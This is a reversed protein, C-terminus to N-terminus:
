SKIHLYQSKFVDPMNLSFSESNNYLLVGIAIIDETKNNFSDRKNICIIPINM